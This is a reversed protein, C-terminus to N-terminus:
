GVMVNRGSDADFYLFADNRLALRVPEGHEFVANPPTLAMLKVGGSEAVLIGAAGLAEYIEVKADVVAAGNAEAGEKVVQVHQPRIGVTIRGAKLM